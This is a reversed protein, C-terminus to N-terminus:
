VMVVFGIYIVVILLLMIVVFVLFYSVDFMILLLFCLFGYVGFKLMIVVLVVLGGMLVEVYVDLLWMYVLWM